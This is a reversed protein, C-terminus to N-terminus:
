HPVRTHTLLSITACVKRLSEIERQMRTVDAGDYAMPVGIDVDEAPEPSATRTRLTIADRSQSRDKKKSRTNQSTIGLERLVLVDEEGHSSPPRAKAKGRRGREHQSDEGSYQVACENLSQASSSTTKRKRRQSGSETGMLVPPIEDLIRADPSRSKRRRHGGNQVQNARNERQRATATARRQSSQPVPHASPPMSCSPCYRSVSDLGPKNTRSTTHLTPTNFRFPQACGPPIIAALLCSTVRRGSM